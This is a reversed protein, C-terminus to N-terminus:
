LVKKTLLEQKKKSPTIFFDDFGPLGKCVLRHEEKELLLLFESTKGCESKLIISLKPWITIM